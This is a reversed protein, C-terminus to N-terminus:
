ECRSRWLDDIDPRVVYTKSGLEPQLEDAVAARAQSRTLRNRSSTTSAVHHQLRAPLIERLEAGAGRGLTAVGRLESSNVILHAQQAQPSLSEASPNWSEFSLASTDAEIRHLWRKVTLAHEGNYFRLGKYVQWSRASAGSFSKEICTGNGTDGFEFMWYHGPRFHVEEESSWLERVQVCGYKGPGLLNKLEVWLEELRSRRNGIGAARAVTLRRENWVTLRQHLCGPVTLCDGENVTGLHPGRGRVRSCAPCWCSWQRMAIM